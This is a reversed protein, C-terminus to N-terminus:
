TEIDKQRTTTNPANPGPDEYLGPPTGGGDAPPEEQHSEDARCFDNLQSCEPLLRDQKKLDTAAAACVLTTALVSTLLKMKFRM